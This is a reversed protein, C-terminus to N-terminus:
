IVEESVRWDKLTNGEFTIEVPIGELRKVDDVKAKKMIEVVKRTMEGFSKTQDELTWKSHKDPAMQWGGCVFAGAGSGKMDFDLTLGVQVDQYGGFGFKATRIKGLRKELEM